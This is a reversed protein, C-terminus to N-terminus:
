DLLAIIERGGPKGVLSLENEARAALTAANSVSGVALGHIIRDVAAGAIPPLTRMTIPLAVSDFRGGHLLLNRQNYLRRFSDRFYGRMRELVASPDRQLQSIRRVAANDAASVFELTGSGVKALAYQLPAIGPPITEAESILDLLSTLEARPFSCAVLDASRDAALVGREGPRALLGELAAWIASVSAWSSTTEVTALLELADDITDLSTEAQPLLGSHDRLTPLFVFSPRKPLSVWKPTYANLVLATLEYEPREGRDGVVCRAHLRRLELEAAILASRPERAVVDFSLAGAGQRVSPHALQREDLLALLGEHTYYRDVTKAQKIVQSPIRKFPVIVTYTMAPRSAMSGAARLVSALQDRTFPTSAERTENKLWRHLHEPSFGCDLLHGMCLRAILEVDDDAVGSLEVESAWRKLYGPGARRIHEELSVLKAASKSLEKHNTLLECIAQVAPPSDFARDRQILSRASACVYKLGEDSTLAGSAVGNVYEVVEQLALFSGVQWLRRHWPTGNAVFEAMRAIVMDENSHKVVTGKQLLKLGAPVGRSLQLVPTAM